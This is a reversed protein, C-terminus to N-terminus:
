DLTKLLIDKFRIRLEDKSHLQLVIHGQRGVNRLRHAENDLGGTGDYDSM